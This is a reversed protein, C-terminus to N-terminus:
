DRGFGSNASWSEVSDPFATTTSKFTSTHRAPVPRRRRRNRKPRGSWIVFAAILAAGGAWHHKTFICFVGVLILLGALWERM